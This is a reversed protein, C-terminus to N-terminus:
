PMIPPRIFYRLLERKIGGTSSAFMVNQYVLGVNKSLAYHGNFETEFNEHIRFFSLKNDLCTYEGSPVQVVFPVEVMKSYWFYLTDGNAVVYQENFKTEFDKNSFKINGHNDVIYELSDRLFLPENSIFNGGEIKFYQVGNIMTDKSVYNSDISTSNCETWTSDCNSKGYIWYNGVTLPYYELVSEQPVPDSNSENKNCALFIVLSVLAILMLHKM